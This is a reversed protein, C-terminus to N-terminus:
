EQQKNIAMIGLTWLCGTWIAETDNSRNRESGHKTRGRKRESTFTPKRWYVRRFKIKRAKQVVKRSWRRQIHVKEAQILAERTAWSTFFRDTIHSVQTRDRPKSSGRSFPFAVWELIRAQLIGCVTYLEHPRLSDSTASRSESESVQM